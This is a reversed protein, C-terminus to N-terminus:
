WWFCFLSFSLSAAFRRCSCPCNVEADHKAVVAATLPFLTGDVAGAAVRFEVWGEILEAEVRIGVWCGPVEAAVRFEVWGETEEAAVRFEVWGETEEAAVRFEVWGFDTAEAEVRIGVWCGTVEAAM